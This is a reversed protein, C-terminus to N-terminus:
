KLQGFMLLHNKFSLKMPYKYVQQKKIHLYFLVLWSMSVLLLNTPNMMKTLIYIALIHGMAGSICLSLALPPHITSYFGTIM